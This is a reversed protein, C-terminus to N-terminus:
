QQDHLFYKVNSVFDAINSKITELNSKIAPTNDWRALPSEQSKKNDNLLKIFKEKEVVNHIHFQKTKEKTEKIISEVIFEKDDIKICTGMLYTNYNKDDDKWNLEKSIIIANEIIKDLFKFAIIQNSNKLYYKGDDRKEIDGHQISYEIDGKSVEIKGLKEYKFAVKNNFQPNKTNLIEKYKEQEFYYNFVARAMTRRDMGVFDSDNEKTANVVANRQLLENIRYEYDNIYKTEIHHTQINGQRDKGGNVDKFHVVEDNAISNGNNSINNGNNKRM